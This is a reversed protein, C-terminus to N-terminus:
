GLGLHVRMIHPIQSYSFLWIDLRQTVKENYKTGEGGMQNGFCAHILILRPSKM